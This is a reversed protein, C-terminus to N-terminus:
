LVYHLNRKRNSWSGWRQKWCSLQQQFRCIVEMVALHGRIHDCHFKEMGSAFKERWGVCKVLAASFLWSPTTAYQGRHNLCFFFSLLYDRFLFMLTTQLFTNCNLNTWKLSCGINRLDTFDRYKKLAPSLFLFLNLLSVQIGYTLRMHTRMATMGGPLCGLCCNEGYKSATYCGLAIPCCFGVAGLSPSTNEESINVSSLIDKQLEFRVLIHVSYSITSVSWVTVAAPACAPAGTEPRSMQGM